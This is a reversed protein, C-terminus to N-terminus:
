LATLSRRVRSGEELADISRSAGMAPDAPTKGPSWAARPEGAITEELSNEFDEDTITAPTLLKIAHGAHGGAQALIKREEYDDPLFAWCEGGQARAMINEGNSILAWAKSERIGAESGIM